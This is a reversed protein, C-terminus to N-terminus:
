LSKFSEVHSFFIRDADVSSVYDKYRTTKVSDRVLTVRVRYRRVGAVDRPLARRSVTIRTDGYAMHSTNM